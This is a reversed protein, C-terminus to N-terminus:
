IFNSKREKKQLSLFPYCCNLFQLLTDEVELCSSTDPLQIVQGDSVIQFISLCIFHCNELRQVDPLYLCCDRLSGVIEGLQYMTAIEPIHCLFHSGFCLQGFIHVLFVCSLDPVSHCLPTIHVSVFSQSRHLKGKLFSASIVSQM